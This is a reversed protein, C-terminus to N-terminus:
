DWYSSLNDWAPPEIDPTDEIHHCVKCEWYAQGNGRVKRVMPLNCKKCTMGKEKTVIRADDYEKRLEEAILIADPMSSNLWICRTLWEGDKLFQIHLM